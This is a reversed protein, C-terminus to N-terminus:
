GRRPHLAIRVTRSTVRTHHEIRESVLALASVHGRRHALYRLGARSLRLHLVRAGTRTLSFRRSALVTARRHARGLSATSGGLTSLSVALVCPVSTCGASLSVTTGNSSAGGSIVAAAVADTATFPMGYISGNDNWTVWGQGGANVASTADHMGGDHNANVTAGTWTKGGDGSYSETLPGGVGDLLYTAYIGGGGDQGLAPQQESAAAVLVTPTDFRQTTADFRHYITTHHTIDSELLGFGSPGGAVAPYEVGCDAQTVPVRWASNPQGPSLNYDNGAAQNGAGYAFATGFSATCALPGNTFLTNFVALIGPAAGSQSAFQGGANSIQDPNSAPSLSAYPTACAAESCEPAGALPFANFTPPQSGATNYGFGLVGAGPVIVANLPQTDADIVGNAVSLGGNVQTFTAGGDTSQWEQAPEYHLANDGVAGYVDALVVLTSGDAIVQVSDIYAAGDAPMLQGSHTCATAGVPLTCYQVFNTAGALDETNAWAILTTGSSDVALAPPGSSLPTGVKIPLKGLASAPAAAALWVGLGAIAAWRMIHRRAYTHTRDLAM